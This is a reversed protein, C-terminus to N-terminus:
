APPRESSLAHLAADQLLGGRYQHREYKRFLSIDVVQCKVRLIGSQIPPTICWETPTLQVSMNQRWPEKISLLRRFITTHAHISEFSMDRRMNPGNFDPGLSQPIHSFQIAPNIRTRHTHRFRCLSIEQRPKILIITRTFPTLFTRALPWM